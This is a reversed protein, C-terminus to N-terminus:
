RHASYCATLELRSNPVRAASLTHEAGARRFFTLEWLESVVDHRLIYVNSEAHGRVKFYWHDPGAVPGRDAIEVRSGSLAFRHPTEEGRYGTYCAVDAPLTMGPGPGCARLRGAPERIACRRVAPTLAQGPLGCIVWFPPTM